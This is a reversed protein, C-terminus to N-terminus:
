CKWQWIVWIKSQLTCLGKSFNDTVITMAAITAPCFSVEARFLNTSLL